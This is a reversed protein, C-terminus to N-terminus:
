KAPLPKIRVNRFTVKGHDGQLMLPGPETAIGALSGGTPSDIEADDIVKEGNWIVTVRAKKTVKSNERRAGHFVIDYNQWEKPPKAINKSPAIRGYLAGCQISSFVEIKKGDKEIVTPKAYYDNNIQIEYLGQLYVGSNGTGQFEVHLEFDTFKQETYLDCDHLYPGNKCSLVGDEVKWGGTENPVMVSVQRADKLEKGEKDVIGDRGGTKVIKADLPKGDADVPVIKGDIKHIKADKIPQNKADVVTEKQDLRTIKAGAIVKGSPDVIQKLTVTEHRLKWGTTDKGNFLVIWGEQKDNAQLGGAIVQLALLGLLIRGTRM